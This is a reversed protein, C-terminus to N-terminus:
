CGVDCCDKEPEKKTQTSYIAPQNGAIFSYIAESHVQFPSHESEIHVNLTFPTTVFWVM